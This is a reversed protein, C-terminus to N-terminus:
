KKRPIYAITEELGAELSYPSNFGTQQIYKSKYQTTACFKKIRISSIPFEKRLLFALFDFIVGVLYGLFYPLRISLGKKGLKKQIVSVLQQTTLDPKDVFNFVHYGTMKNKICHLMFAVLNKVYAMSKKNRGDGVMIFRGSAIQKLLNNVNGTNGRGFVVTPRIIILTRKQKDNEYWNRLVEEALWKTKGYENFPKPSDDEDPENRNLGFISVSSMFIINRIGKKEMVDLVNRTGEVNVKHYKEVPSVDDRHEAALLIVWDSPKMNNTLQELDTVDTLITKEAFDSSIRIDLNQVQENEDFVTLLETGIFGSGGIITLSM